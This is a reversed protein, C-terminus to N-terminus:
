LSHRVPVNFEDMDPEEGGRWMSMVIESLCLANIHDRLPLSFLLFLAAGEEVDEVKVSFSDGAM